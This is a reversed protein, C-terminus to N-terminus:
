YKSGNTKKEMNKIKSISNTKNKKKKYIKEERAVDYM